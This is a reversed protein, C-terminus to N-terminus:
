VAEAKRPLSTQGREAGKRYSLVGDEMLVDIMDGPGFDGDMIRESIPNAIHREVARQLERAGFERSYGVQALHEYARQFMRIGMQRDRIRGRINDIMIKLISRVDEFLLPYFPVIEDIRNIFEPRFHEKLAGIVDDANGKEKNALVDAGANSTFIIITNKFDIIRGDSDKLRGEDLIPLFLDFVKPHAKEIEDFLLISFPSNQVAGTLLGEQDSGVYGPPAGILKSVSHAEAYESMDFTILHSSSGFVNKALEKALQTKGVGTPGSFLMVGDPRNPDALGAKSKKITSVVKEIAEDQGIIKQGLREDLNAIRQREERTIDEIPVNATQSVVKRISHPTVRRSSGKSAATNKNMVLSIRHRACAQDLIDIAKDPFQRNPLYRETLAIAAGISKKSIYVGHHRELETKMSMLVNRTAEPSLANVRVMQFRREVAPDKSIFKRYEKLTTAGICRIEGRGLAPKLLNALDMGDGDTAGAGMILHIEDIFLITEQDRKLEDILAILKEEVGGRYQTGSMLASINLELIRSQGVLSALQGNACRCALDEVIRTKGTGAEGVLILNNKNQRALVEIMEMAEKERGVAPQLKGAKAMATLDRTFEDVKPPEPQPAEQTTVASANPSVHQTDSIPQVSKKESKTQLIVTRLDNILTKRLHNQKDMMRSPLAYADTVIALLLHSASATDQSMKKALRSASAILNACRPSYFVEGQSPPTGRWGQAYCLQSVQRLIGTYKDIIPQPLLTECEIVAEFLHEVGVYYTGRRRSMEAAEDIIQNLESSVQVQM